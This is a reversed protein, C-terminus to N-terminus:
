RPGALSARSARAVAVARAFLERAAVEDGRELCLAMGDALLALAHRTREPQPTGAGAPPRGRTCPDAIPM